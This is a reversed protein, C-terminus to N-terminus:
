TAEENYEKIPEVEITTMRVGEVPADEEDVSKMTKRPKSVNNDDNISVVRRQEMLWDGFNAVAELGASDKKGQIVGVSKLVTMSPVLDGEDIANVVNETAKEVAGLIREKADAVIQTHQQDTYNLVKADKATIRVSVAKGVTDNDGHLVKSIETGKMGMASLDGIIKDRPSLRKKKGLRCTGIGEVYGIGGNGYTRLVEREEGQITVTRKDENEM